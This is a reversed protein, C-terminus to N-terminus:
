PSVEGQTEGQEVDPMPLDATVWHWAVVPGNSTSSVDDAITVDAGYSHMEMTQADGGIASWRGDATVGVRIRMPIVQRYGERFVAESLFFSAGTRAGLMAYEVHKGVSIVNVAHVRQSGSRGVWKQGAEIKNM